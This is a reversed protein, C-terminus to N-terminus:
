ILQRIFERAHLVSNETTQVFPEYSSMEQTIEGEDLPLLETSLVKNVFHQLRGAGELERAYNKQVTKLLEVKENDHSCILLYIVFNDFTKKKADETAGLEVAEEETAAKM